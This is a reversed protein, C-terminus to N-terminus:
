DVILRSMGLEAGFRTEPRHERMKVEDARGLGDWGVGARTTQHEALRALL